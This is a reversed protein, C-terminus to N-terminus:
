RRERVRATVAYLAVAAVLIAGNVAQSVAGPVNLFPMANNLLSIFVAGLLAGIFSGRGGTMVAGGLFM